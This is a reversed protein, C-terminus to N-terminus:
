IDSPNGPFASLMVQFGASRMGLGAAPSGLVAWSRLLTLPALGEPCVLSLWRAQLRVSTSLMSLKSLM